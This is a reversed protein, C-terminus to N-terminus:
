FPYKLFLRNLLETNESRFTDKTLVLGRVPTEEVGGAVGTPDSQIGGAPGSEADVFTLLAGGPTWKPWPILPSVGAARDSPGNPDLFVALNILSDYYSYDLAPENTTPGVGTEILLDATHASGIIPTLKERKYLYSWTPARQSIINLLFRRTAVFWVDTQFSAIRKYGPYLQNLLGTDFPCGLAPDAPYAAAVADIESSNALPLWVGKLYEKFALETTVNTQSLSFITGEDDCDGNIVPVKAYKGSLLLRQPDEKFFNGDTGPAYVFRLGGYAFSGPSLDMAQRFAQTSSQRLCDLTDNAASCGVSKVM